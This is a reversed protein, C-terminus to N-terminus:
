EEIMNKHSSLGNKEIECLNIHLYKELLRERWVFRLGASWLGVIIIIVFYDLFNNLPTIDFFTSLHEKTHLWVFILLLLGTLVTPRWDGSLKDGGVFFNTPPEVFIILAFGCLIMLYTLAHASYSNDGTISQFYLYTVLGAAFTMIAGPVVFHILKLFINGKSQAEPRSWLALFCSPISLTLISVISNQKPTFPFGLALSSVAGILLAMYIIRTLYLRLIDQMGNLIRQGELLAYPLAAFSDNLLLIDAVGRAAQSGSQMSIGLNAQKLALVDNVGDGIMAVYYGQKRLSKVLRQKQEPTIRGFVTYNEACHDFHADDMKELELGSITKLDEGEKVAGAQKVLAAVTQPNDGSIIKLQVGAKIFKQLTKEAEPRLQDSFTIYCLPILGEPIVPLEKEDRLPPAGPLFTFLLVRLGKDACEKEFADDLEKNLKPKLIEPAGMICTWAENENKYSLGSWKYKSSFPVEEFIKIPEESLAERLANNTSNNISASHAFVGLLRKIDDGKLGFPNELPKVQDLLIKNTTLTGTKDLCLVNVHCLSEVSNVHQVLAGKNAIRVAGLAYAVVIMLFLGSPALGFIVSAMRVTNLLTFREIISSIFLMLGFFMVMALLIRVLVDVERQLPTLDNKFTRASATITNAFSEAGVKEAKYYGRGTICFSGSLVKDGMTKKVVDSEGTLLSEDMELFGEGVIEGDVVVQDGSTLLLLDGQVIESPDINKEQGERIVVSRPKTLLAIQDLKHKARVEQIVAIFVNVLVVGSTIIAESPSGLLALVLGLGLLVMNFLTFLNDKLIEKYSRSTEMKVDNGLGRSRRASAEEETLGRMISITKKDQEM